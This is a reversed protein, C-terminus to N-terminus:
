FLNYPSKKFIDPRNTAIFSIETNLLKKIEKEDDVTWVAISIGRALFEKMRNKELQHYEVSVAQIGNEVLFDPNKPFTVAIFTTSIVPSIKRTEILYDLNFSGITTGTEMNYKRVLKIVKAPSADKIEIFLRTRDAIIQLSEELSPVKVDKFEGKWKGADLKKVKKYTLEKVSGKGDTTRDVTADHIVVVEGDMTERADLEIFDVGLEVAKQFALLTNEPYLKSFGRHAVVLVSRM